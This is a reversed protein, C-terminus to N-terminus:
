IHSYELDINECKIAKKARHEINERWLPEQCVKTV